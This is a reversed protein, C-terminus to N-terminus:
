RQIYTYTYKHIIYDKAKEVGSYVLMHDDKLLVKGQENKKTESIVLM